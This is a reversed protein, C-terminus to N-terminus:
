CLVNQLSLECQIRFGAYPMRFVQEAVVDMSFGKFVEEATTYVRQVAISNNSLVRLVDRLLEAEFRYDKAPDLARLNVWFILDVPQNLALGLPTPASDPNSAPDRPYFFSQASVNDNPLVDRYEREGDYVEPYYITKTGDKRGSRYARGYSVQLWPLKAALLLQVRQIEKDLGIPNPLTPAQPNLYSVM